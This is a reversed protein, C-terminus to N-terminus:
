GARGNWWFLVNVALVVVMTYILSLPGGVDDPVLLSRLADRLLAAPALSHASATPAATAALAPVPTASAM